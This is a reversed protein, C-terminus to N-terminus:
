IVTIVFITCTNGFLTSPLGDIMARRSFNIRLQKALRMIVWCRWCNCETHSLRHDGLWFEESPEVYCLENM